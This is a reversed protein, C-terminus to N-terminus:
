GKGSLDGAVEILIRDILLIVDDADETAEEITEQPSGPVFDRLDELRELLAHIRPETMFPETLHLEIEAIVEKDIHGDRLADRMRWTAERLVGLQRVLDNTEM